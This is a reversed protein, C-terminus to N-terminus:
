GAGALYCKMLFVRGSLKSSSNDQIIEYDIGDKRIIAQGTICGTDKTLIDANSVRWTEDDIQIRRHKSTWRCLIPTETEKLLTNGNADTVTISLKCVLGITTITPISTLFTTSQRKQGNKSFDLTETDNIKISGNCGLNGKIATVKALLRYSGPPQDGLKLIGDAKVSGVFLPWPEKSVRLVKVKLGPVM